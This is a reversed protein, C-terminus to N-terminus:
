PALYALTEAPPDEEQPYFEIVEIRFLLLPMGAGTQWTELSALNGSFPDFLAVKRSDSYQITYQDGQYIESAYLAQRTVQNGTKVASSAEALFGFDLHFSQAPNLPMAEGSTQNRWAGDKLIKIELANNDMDLKREVAKVLRGQEDLYYWADVQYQSLQSGQLASQSERTTLHLWGPMLFSEVRRQRLEELGVLAPASTPTVHAVSAPDLEFVWPGKVQISARYEQNVIGQAQEQTMNDPWASVTFNLSSEECAIRIGSNQADLRPQVQNLYWACTEGERPTAELSSLNLSTNSIEQEALVHFALTDCRENADIEDLTSAHYPTSHTNGQAQYDLIADNVMWDRGEPLSFCVQIYLTDSDRRPNAIRLNFAELIPAPADPQSNENISVLTEFVWAMGEPAPTYAVQIWEGASSRGLIPLRSGALAQGVVPYSTGPGSRLNIKDYHVLAYDIAVPTSAPQEPPAPPTPNAAELVIPETVTPVPASPAATAPPQVAESQATPVVTCATLALLLTSLILVSISLHFIKHSM